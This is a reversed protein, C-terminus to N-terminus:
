RLRATAGAIAAEAEAIGEILQREESLKRLHEIKEEVSRELELLAYEAFVFKLLQAMSVKPARIREQVRLRVAKLTEADVYGIVRTMKHNAEM